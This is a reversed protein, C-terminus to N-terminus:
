DARTVSDMIPNTFNGERRTDFSIVMGKLDQEEFEEGFEFPVKLRNLLRGFASKQTLHYPCSLKMRGDWGEVKAGTQVHLNLYQVPEGSANESTTVEVTEIPGTYRGVPIEVTKKAIIPM